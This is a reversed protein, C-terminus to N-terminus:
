GTKLRGWEFGFWKLSEALERSPPEGARGAQHQEPGIHVLGNLFTGTTIVLAACGFCDGDEFALEAARREHLDPLATPKGQTTAILLPRCPEGDYDLSDLIRKLSRTSVRRPQDNADIWDIAIGVQRARDRIAEENM